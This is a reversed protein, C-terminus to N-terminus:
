RLSIVSFDFARGRRIGLQISMRLVERRREEEEPSATRRVSNNNNSSDGGGAAAGGNPRSPSLEM